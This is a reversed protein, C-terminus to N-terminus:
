APIHYTASSRAVVKGNAMINCHTYLSSRTIRHFDVDLEVWADPPVPAIYDISLNRTPLHKNTFEPRFPKIAAVQFDAFTAIAGGHCNDAINLHHDQVRFGFLYKEGVNKKYMVGFTSGFGDTMHVAEFGEPVVDSM